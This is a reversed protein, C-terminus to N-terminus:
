KGEQNFRTSQRTQNARRLDCAPSRRRTLRRPRFGSIPRGATSYAGAHARTHIEAFDLGEAHAQAIQESDVVAGALFEEEGLEEVAWRHSQEWDGFADVQLEVLNGDPDCYYYSLTFGHDLGCVPLIGNDRLRLYTCNLEDFSGFEWAAHHLGDHVVRDPDRVIGPVATLEIRHNALDNSLFAIAGCDCLVEAGVVEGYWAVMEDQRTTKLDVHHLTPGPHLAMVRGGVVRTSGEPDHFVLNTAVSGGKARDPNVDAIM